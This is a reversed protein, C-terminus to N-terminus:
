GALPESGLAFAEFAHHSVQDQEPPLEMYNGYLSKLIIDYEKPVSFEVGEFLLWRGDGYSEIKSSGKFNYPSVLCCLLNSKKTSNSISFIDILDLIIIIPIISCLIKGCHLITRKIFTRTKRYKIVKLKILSKLFQIIIQNIYRIVINSPLSDIPFIDINVGLNPTPIDSYEILVTKKNSLKAFPLPYNQQTEKSFLELYQNIDHERIFAAYDSRPMAVDIDDDWPIYGKHRVAGILTGFALYYKLNHKSCYNDFNRLIDLQIDRIDNVSLPIYQSSRFPTM